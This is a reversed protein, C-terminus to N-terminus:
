IAGLSRDLAVMDRAVERLKQEMQFVQKIAYLRHSPRKQKLESKLEKLEKLSKNVNERVTKSM